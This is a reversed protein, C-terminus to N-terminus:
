NSEGQNKMEGFLLCSWVNSIELIRCSVHHMFEKDENNACCMIKVGLKVEFEM